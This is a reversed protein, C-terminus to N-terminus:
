DNLKEMAEKYKDLIEKIYQKELETLVSLPVKNDYISTMKCEGNNSTRVDEKLKHITYSEYHECIDEPDLMNENYCCHLEKLVNKIRYYCNAIKNNHTLM